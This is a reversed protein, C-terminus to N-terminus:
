YGRFDHGDEDRYYAGGKRFGDPNWLENTDKHLSTERHFGTIKHFGNEDYDEIIEHGNPCGTLTTAAGFGVVWMTVLMAISVGKKFGDWLQRYKNNKFFIRQKQTTTQTM